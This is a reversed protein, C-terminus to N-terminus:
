KDINLTKLATLLKIKKDVPVSLYIKGGVACVSPLKFFNHELLESLAIELDISKRAYQELYEMHFNSENERYIQFLELHDKSIIFEKNVCNNLQNNLRKLEEEYIKLNEELVEIYKEKNYKKKADVVADKVESIVSM